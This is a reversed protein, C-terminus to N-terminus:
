QLDPHPMPNSTWHLNKGCEKFDTFWTEVQRFFEEVQLLQKRLNRLFIKLINSASSSWIYWKDQMWQTGTKNQEQSEKWWRSENEYKVGYSPVSRVRVNSLRFTVKHCFISDCNGFIVHSDILLDPKPFHITKAMNALCHWLSSPPKGLRSGSFYACLKM